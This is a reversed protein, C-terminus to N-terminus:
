CSVPLVEAFFVCEAFLNDASECGVTKAVRDVFFVQLVFEVFQLLLVGVFLHEVRSADRHM